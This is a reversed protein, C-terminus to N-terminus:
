LIGFSRSSLIHEMIQEMPKYNLMFSAKNAEVIEEQDTKSFDLEFGANAAIQQMFLRQTRGNGERFPHVANTESIYYATKKAMQKPDTIHKLCNEAHLEKFIRELEADIFMSHCFMTGKAIEVTRFEGAWEYIDSFLQRHLWKLHKIDFSAPSAITGSYIMSAAIATLKRETENLLEADTINLRNKLVSSDPYCYTTDNGTTYSKPM